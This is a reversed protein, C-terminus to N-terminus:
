GEMMFELFGDDNDDNGGAIWESYRKVLVDDQVEKLQPHKFQLNQVVMYGWETMM